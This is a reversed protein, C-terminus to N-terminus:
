PANAAQRRSASRGSRRRALVAVLLVSGAVVGVLGAVTGPQTLRDTAKEGRTPRAVAIAAVAPVEAITEDGQSVVVRGLPQGRRVPGQVSEPLGVLAVRPKPADRRVIRRVPKAAMVPVEAGRRYRIAVHADRFRQGRRVARLVRYRTFGWRLLDLTDDNRDTESPAGLVATLLRVGRRDQGSGVLVYGAESTHGTKVGDVRADAVLTNRNVVTRITDGSTLTARERAVTRRFFPHTRLQLVLHVLDRASSRNGPDDLGVPNAFHTSTLGLARARRNMARVFAARSGSTGEALTMAADNASVLLLARLLDAVTMKERPRLGLQSEIPAPRYRSAPMVTSLSENELTVLATMLKTASAIPRSEDARKAYTVDGSSPEIVIANAASVEPTATAAHAPAVASALTLVVVTIAAAVVTPADRRALRARCASAAVDGGGPGSTATSLSELVPAPRPRRSTM